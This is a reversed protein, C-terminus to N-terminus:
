ATMAFLSSIRADKATLLATVIQRGADTMHYRNRGSVKVLIGHACLLRLKRTSWGSRRRAEVKTQAVSEFWRSQLDANRLGEIAYEGRNVIELLRMDEPAFPRLARTQKGNYSAPLTIRSLLDWLRMDTAASSLADMYRDLAEESVHARAEFDAVGRRLARYAMEDPSGGEKARFVRFSEENNLTMEFRLVAGRESAAKDYMKVSNGNNWHKIRAGEYRVKYTSNVDGQVHNVAHAGTRGLFRLVDPSKLNTMGHRMLDAVLPELQRRNSFVVDRAYESQHCSWYYDAHCRERILPHLPHIDAVLSDLASSWDTALQEQLLEQARAFDEIWPFCNDAKEYGIGAQDLQRALWERGNMCIQLRFPFWTQLRVNMWGFVAHFRYAYIHLCRRVRAVVEIHRTAPNGRVDFTKCSEVCGLACVHGDHINNERAIRRAFEEKSTNCSPLYYYSAGQEQLRKLSADRVQESLALVHEGFNKILVGADRLYMDVGRPCCLHRIMGTMVFRDLGCLVAVIHPAFRATFQNM